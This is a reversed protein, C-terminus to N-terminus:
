GYTALSIALTFLVSNLTRSICKKLNFYLPCTVNCTKPTCCLSKVYTHITFHSGCYISKADMVVYNYNKEYLSFTLIWERVILCIYLASNNVLAM